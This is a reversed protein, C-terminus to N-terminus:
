VEEELSAIIKDLQDAQRSFQEVLVDQGSTLAKAEKTRLEDRVNIYQPLKESVAVFSQCTYCARFKHCHQDLDLGCYGYIPTNIHTGDLELKHAQPNKWFSKPFSEYALRHGESNVLARQIHGVEREMLECSIETYYTSTTAWHKHGAWASVVAIDHGMEFLQTLRTDRLQSPVFKALIGNEDVIKEVKILCNIVVVLPNRTKPIVQKIPKLQPQSVDNESLGHYHCFLYDWNEGWQENIYTLQEQVVKAITRTIPVEHYNKGKKRQWVLKWHQGEQVLCDKKLLALESPRMAAFFCIIWMRAIPDPLKYLNQEIQEQVVTSIPDPNGQQRKPYDDDRIIDSDVSFWGRITGAYFFSRLGGLKNKTVKKEQALYDLILSRNIQEFGTVSIRGLYSSFARLAGLHHNITSFANSQGAKGLYHIYKKVEEKFWGPKISSFNVKFYEKDREDFNPNIARLDWIDEDFNFSKVPIIHNSYTSINSSNLELCDWLRKKCSHCKFEKKRCKNQKIYKSLGSFYIERSDCEPCIFEQYRHQTYWVVRSNSPDQIAQIKKQCSEPCVYQCSSCCFLRKKNTNIGRVVMGLTQCQPCAFEGHYDQKWNINEDQLRDELFLSRRSIDISASTNKRCRRCKFIRKGNAFSALHLKGRNCKPCIFEDRYDQLWDIKM